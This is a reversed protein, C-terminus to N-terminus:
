QMGPSVVPLGYGAAAAAMRLDYTVVADLDDCELASAIHLADLTRVEPPSLAAAFTLATPTLELLDIGAILQMAATLANQGVRAALRQLEVAGIVSTLQSSGRREEIWSRLANSEDEILILKALASADFYITM